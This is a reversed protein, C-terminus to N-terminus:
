TRPAARGLLQDILEAACRDALVSSKERLLRGQNAVLEDYFPGRGSEDAPSASCLGLWLVKRDEARILRARARYSLAYASASFQDPTLVWNFTSVDFALGRGVARAVEDLGDAPLRQAQAALNTLGLEKTVAAVFRERVREAPDPLGLASVEARQKEEVAVAGLGVLAGILGLSATSNATQGARTQVFIQSPEYRLLRIQAEDKLGARLSTDIRVPEPACGALLVALVSTAPLLRRFTTIRM